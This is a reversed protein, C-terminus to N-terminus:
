RTGEQAFRVADIAASITAVDAREFQGANLLPRLVSLLEICSGLLDKSAGLLRADHEHTYVIAVEDGSKDIVTWYPALRRTVQRARWKGPTFVGKAPRLPGLWSHLNGSEALTQTAM